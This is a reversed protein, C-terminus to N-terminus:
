IRAIERVEVNGDFNFIPCGKAIEVAHQATEAKISIYGGVAEKSEMYPGDTILKARGRIVVAENRTLREGGNYIGKKELEEVWNQWKLIVQQVQEPPAKTFDLGGRFLLLYDKM